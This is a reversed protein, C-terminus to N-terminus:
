GRSVSRLISSYITLVRLATLIATSAAFIWFSFLRVAIIHQWDQLTPPVLAVGLASLLATILWWYTAAVLYSVLMEYAGAEKSRQIIWKDDISLLISKATVLFGIMIAAVNLFSALLDKTGPPITSTRLLWYCVGASVLGGLWPYHREARAGM